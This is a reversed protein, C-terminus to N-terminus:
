DFDAVDHPGVCAVTPAGHVTRAIARVDDETVADLADITEDPSQIEGFTVKQGAARRAVAGTSELSLVTSGAAYARAREVEGDRPGEEALEAVIERIRTYAEQCKSSDLGAMVELSSADAHSWGYSRIAYCLGRQERIEDFLRSGMSGGLLTAYVALAARTALDSQDVDPRWALRLHSQNTDRREVLVR